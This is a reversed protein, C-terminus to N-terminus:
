MTQNLILVILCMFVCGSSELTCGCRGELFEMLTAFTMPPPILGQVKMESFMAFLLHLKRSSDNKWKAGPPNCAFTDKKSDKKGMPPKWTDGDLEVQKSPTVDLDLMSIDNREFKPKKLETKDNTEPEDIEEKQKELEKLKRALAKAEPAAKKRKKAAKTADIKQQELAQKKQAANQRRNRLFVQSKIAITQQQLREEEAAQKAAGAEANDKDQKSKEAAEM